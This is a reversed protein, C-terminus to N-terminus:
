TIYLAIEFVRKLHQISSYNGRALYWDVQVVALGEHDVNMYLVKLTNRCTCRRLFPSLM